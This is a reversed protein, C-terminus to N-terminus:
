QKSETATFYGKQQFGFRTIESAPYNHIATNFAQAEENFKYCAVVIRNENNVLESQLDLFNQNAKLNSYLNSDQEVNVMLRSIAISLDDQAKQFAVINDDTLKTPDITTQIAKTRAEIVKTLAEDEHTAYGKVTAVLNPVLDSRRQYVNEVDAWQSKVSEDLTVLLQYDNDSNDGPSTESQKNRFQSLPDNQNSESNDIIVKKEQLKRFLPDQEMANREMFSANNYRDILTSVDKQTLFTNSLTIHDKPFVSFDGNLFLVHFFLSFGVVIAIMIAVTEIFYVVIGIFKKIFKKM